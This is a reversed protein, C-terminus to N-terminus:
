ARKFTLYTPTRGERSRRPRTARARGAPGPNGGTTPGSRRGRSIPAGASTSSRGTSTPISTAPSGSSAARAQAGAGPPRPQGRQRLPAELAAAEAMSRSLPSRSRRALGAAALRPPAAADGGYLRVNALGRTPSRPSRRRWATSSPSSASSAPRGALRTAAAILHEGGGFGIELRVDSPPAPFLSAIDAPSPTTSTSNRAHRPRTAMLGTRRASLPKGKRRGHLAHRREM